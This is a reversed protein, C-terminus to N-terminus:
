PAENLPRLRPRGPKELFRSLAAVGSEENGNMHVLVISGARPHQGQALWADTGLAVLHHAAVQRLLSPDSVLGPFRFFVSPTLGHEIMRREGGLIEREVDTGPLLMFNRRETLSPVFRHTESHNVWTIALEGNRSREQLWRLDGPHESMWVGSIALAVPAPEGLGAMRELIARDLPRHSPCLDATVFVGEGGGSVLGANYSSGGTPVGSSAAASAIARGFRTASVSEEAMGACAWCSASELSTGLSGPDVLLYAPAGGSTFARTAIREQAGSRCSLLVPRYSAIAGGGPLPCAPAARVAPAGLALCAALALSASLVLSAAV